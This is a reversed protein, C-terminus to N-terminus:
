RPEAAPVQSGQPILSSASQTLAIRRQRAKRQAMFTSVYLAVGVNVLLGLANFERLEAEGLREVYPCPFGRYELKGSRFWLLNVGVFVVLLTWFWVAFTPRYASMAASDEWGPKGQTGADTNM